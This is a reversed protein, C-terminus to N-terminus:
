RTQEHLYVIKSETDLPKSAELNNIILNNDMCMIAMAAYNHLDMLTDRLTESTVNIKIENSSINTFRSLKDSIRVLVGITGHSAFADGYDKNKKEFLIKCDKQIKELQEVRNNEM